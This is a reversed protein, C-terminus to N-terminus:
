GKKIADMQLDVWWLGPTGVVLWLIAKKGLSGIPLFQLVLFYFGLLAIIIPLRFCLLFIHLPLYLGAPEPPVSFFPAVGNATVILRQPHLDVFRSVEIVFSDM